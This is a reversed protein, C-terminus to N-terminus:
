RLLRAIPVGTSVAIPRGTPSKHMVDADIGLRDCLTSLLDPITVPDAVVREGREDSAGHVVGGRIGGGALLASFAGGHHHRGEGHTVDPARGFEGMALVLTSDLLNRAELDRVLAAFAPDFAALCKAHLNFNDTHTDWGGITVEVCKAGSEVLRRALLCGQGFESPGYEDRIAGPEASLDFVRTKESRMFAVTRARLSRLTEAGASSAVSAPSARELTEVLALRRDFRRADIGAPPELHEIPEGAKRVSFAAYADGLFGAGVSPANVTVFQPLPDLADGREKAVISGIAPHRVTADQDYGTKMLYRGRFHNLEKSTVSRVVALRDAIAATRPVHETFEVGEIATGIRRFPGAGAHRKPDFTDIHSPGGAMWLIIAARAPAAPSGALAPRAAHRALLLSLASGMSSALFGRRSVAARAAAADGERECRHARHFM